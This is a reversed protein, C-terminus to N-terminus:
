GLRRRQGHVHEVLEASSMGLINKRVGGSLSKHIAAVVSGNREEDASHLLVALRAQKAVNKPDAQLDLAALLMEERAKLNQYSSAMRLLYM